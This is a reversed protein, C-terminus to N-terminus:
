SIKNNFKRFFNNLNCLFQRVLFLSSCPSVNYIIEFFCHTLCDIVMLCSCLRVLLSIVTKSILVRCVTVFAHPSSVRRAHCSSEVSHVAVYFYLVCVLVFGYHSHPTWGTKHKACKRNHKVFHIM